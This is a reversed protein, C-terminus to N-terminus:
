PTEGAMAEAAHAVAQAIGAYCGCRCINGGLGEHIEELTPRPKRDLLARATMVFGPTCYGCQLATGHGPASQEAFARIVPDDLALGEITVIDHGEAAVALVLCSLVAKGDMIVTCAGCAGEDCALKLGTLGLRERLVYGLSTGTELDRGLALDHDRGNVRLRVAGTPAAAGSRRAPGATEQAM